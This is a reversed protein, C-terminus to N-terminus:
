MRRKCDQMAPRETAITTEAAVMTVTESRPSAVWVELVGASARNVTPPPLDRSLDKLQLEQKM